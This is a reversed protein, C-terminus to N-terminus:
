CVCKGETNYVGLGFSLPCFKPCPQGARRLMSKKKKKEKQFDEQIGMGEIWKYIVVFIIMHVFVCIYSTKETMWWQKQIPPINLLIGPSLLVFLIGLILYKEM